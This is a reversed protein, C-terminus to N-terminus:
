YQLIVICKKDPQSRATGCVNGELPDSSHRHRQDRSSQLSQNGLPKGCHNSDGASTQALEVDKPYGLHSLLIILDTRPRLEKVMSQAVEPPPQIILGKTRPDTPDFFDPSLLSFIGVRLGNVEKLLYPQFLLSELNRM